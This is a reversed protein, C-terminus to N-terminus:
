SAVSKMFCGKIMVPLKINGSDCKVIIVTMVKSHFAAQLVKDTDVKECNSAAAGVKRSKPRNDQLM